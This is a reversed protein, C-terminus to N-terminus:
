LGIENADLMGKVLVYGNERYSHVENDTIIGKAMVGGRESPYM